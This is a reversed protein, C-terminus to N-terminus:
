QEGVQDRVSWGTIGWQDGWESVAQNESFDTGTITAVCNDWMNIAGGQMQPHHM